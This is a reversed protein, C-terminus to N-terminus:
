TYVMCHDVVGYRKGCESVSLLTEENADLMTYFLRHIHYNKVTTIIGQDHM